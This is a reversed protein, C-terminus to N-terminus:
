INQSLNNAHKKEQEYYNCKSGPLEILLHKNLTVTQRQTLKEAQKRHRCSM